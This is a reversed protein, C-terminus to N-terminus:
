PKVMNDAIARYDRANTDQHAAPYLVLAWFDTANRYVSLSVSSLSILSETGNVVAGLLM